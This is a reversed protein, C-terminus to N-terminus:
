CVNIRDGRCQFQVLVPKPAGRRVRRSVESRLDISFERDICRRPVQTGAANDFFVTATGDARAALAPFESRVRNVDM